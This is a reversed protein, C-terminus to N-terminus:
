PVDIVEGNRPLRGGFTVPVACAHLLDVRDVAQLHVHPETSNGSNGCRGLPQGRRVREGPQVEVTGRQLHCVAVVPGEGTDILVHNGALGVWGAAARRRQTLAYGVSPLGRFARHDPQDGATAVVVGDVPALVPRGFGPFHEPPEPRLLAGLTVPASRGAEDVPVFDIAFSSAFLTTGHSPVRNAPSNLTLWRGRFPFALELTPVM